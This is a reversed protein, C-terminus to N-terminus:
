DDDTEPSNKVTPEDAEDTVGNLRNAVDFIRELISSPWKGLAEMDIDTLIRGGHEDRMSRIALRERQRSAAERSVGSYDAKMLQSRHINLERATLGHVWVWEGEGFEPLDVRERQIAIPTLLTDRTITM